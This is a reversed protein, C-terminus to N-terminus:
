YPATEYAHRIFAKLRVDRLEQIDGTNAFTRAEYEELLRAFGRGRVTINNHWGVTSLAANQLAIPVHPYVRRYITKLRTLADAM